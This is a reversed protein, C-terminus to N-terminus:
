LIHLLKQLNNLVDHINLAVCIRVTSKPQYGTVEILDNWALDNWKITM